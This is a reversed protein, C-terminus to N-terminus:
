RSRTAAPTQAGMGRMNGMQRDVRDCQAKMDCMDPGSSMEGQAMQRRMDTCHDMMAQMNSVDHGQMNGMGPMAEGRQQAHAAATLALTLAVTAGAINSYTM